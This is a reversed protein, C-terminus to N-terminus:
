VYNLAASYTSNRKVRGTLTTSMYRNMKFTIDRIEKETKGTQKLVGSLDQITETDWYMRDLHEKCYKKVEKSTSITDETPKLHYKMEPFTNLWVEKLKRAGDLDIDLGYGKAYEMFTQPGLGGPYGFSASKSMQRFEKLVEKSENEPNLGSEKMLVKGFWSHLDTGSNIIEAMRSEGYNLLCHEALACLEAQCYDVALLVKGEPAVYIGRMGEKRPVQQINVKSCSTRGTAVLPRFHPHARGDAYIYKDSLFNKMMKNLHVYEKYCHLFPPCNDGLKELLADTTSIKGTPTKPFTLNYRTEFSALLKQLVHTNNKKGPWFGFTNLVYLKSEIDDKVDKRVKDLYERDILFGNRGISNLAIYGLLQLQETEYKSVLIDRILATVISDIAAYEIHEKTLPADLTFTCRIDSNKDLEIKLLQKAMAKLSANSNFRGRDLSEMMYRLYVDTVRGERLAAFLTNNRFDLVNLDFPATHFVYELEPNLTDMRRIFDPMQKATTVYVTSSRPFCVQLIVPVIPSGEKIMETETDLAAFEEDAAEVPDSIGDWSKITWTRHAVTIKFPQM